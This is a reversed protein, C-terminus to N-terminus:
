KKSTQGKGRELMQAFRQDEGEEPEPDDSDVIEDMEEPNNLHDMDQEEVQNVDETEPVEDDEGEGDTDEESESRDNLEESNVDDKYEDSNVDDQYEENFDGEESEVELGEEQNEEEGEVEEEEDENISMRPAKGIKGVNTNPIYVETEKVPNDSKKPEIPIEEGAPYNFGSSASSNSDNDSDKPNEDIDKGLSLLNSAHVITDTDVEEAHIFNDLAEPSGYDADNFTTTTHKSCSYCLKFKKVM